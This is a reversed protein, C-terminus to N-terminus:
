RTPLYLSGGPSLKSIKHHEVLLGHFTGIGKLIEHIHHPIYSKIGYFSIGRGPPFGDQLPM